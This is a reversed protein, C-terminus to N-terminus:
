FTSPNSPKNHHNRKQKRNSSTQKKCKQQKNNNNTTQKSELTAFLNSSSRFPTPRPFSPNTTHLYSFLTPFYQFDFLFINCSASPVELFLIHLSPYFSLSLFRSLTLSLSLFLDIPFRPFYSHIMFNLLSGSCDVGNPPYSHPTHTHTHTNTHTHITLSSAELSAIM